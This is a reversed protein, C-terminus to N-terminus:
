PIRECTGDEHRVLYTTGRPYVFVSGPEIDNWRLRVADELTAPEWGLARAEEKDVTALRALRRWCQREAWWGRVVKLYYRLSLYLSVM